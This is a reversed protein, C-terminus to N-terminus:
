AHARVPQAILGLHLHLSEFGQGGAQLAPARGVSSCGWKPHDPLGRSEWVTELITGDAAQTKVMTNPIPVPTDGLRMAVPFRKSTENRQMRHPHENYVRM